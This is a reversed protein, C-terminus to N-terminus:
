GNAVMREDGASFKKIMELIWGLRVAKGRKNELIWKYCREITEQPVGVLAEKYEPMTDDMYFRGDEIFIPRDEPHSEYHQSLIQEASLRETPQNNEKLKEWVWSNEKFYAYHNQGSAEKASKSNKGLWTDLEEIADDINTHKEKLKNYEDETLIVNELTGYRKEKEGKCGGKNYKDKGKDKDKLVKGNSISINNMHKDYPLSIKDMDKDKNEWYTRAGCGKAECSKVFKTYQADLDPKITDEWFRSQIGTDEPFRLIAELIQAKENDTIYSMVGLWSPRVTAQFIAPIYKSM